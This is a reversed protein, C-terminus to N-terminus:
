RIYRLYEINLKGDENEIRVDITPISTRGEMRRINLIIGGYVNENFSDAESFQLNITSRILNNVENYQKIPFKGLERFSVLYSNGNKNDIYVRLWKAGSNILRDYFGLETKKSKILNNTAVIDEAVEKIEEEDTLTPIKAILSQYKKELDSLPDTM